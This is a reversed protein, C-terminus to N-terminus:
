RHNRQVSVRNDFSSVALEKSEWVFKTRANPDLVGLEIAFDVGLEKPVSPRPSGLCEWISSLWVVRLTWLNSSCGLQKPHSIMTTELRLSM